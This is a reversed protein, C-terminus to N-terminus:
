QHWKVRDEVAVEALDMAARPFFRVISCMSLDPVPYPGILRHHLNHRHHPVVFLNTVCSFPGRLCL